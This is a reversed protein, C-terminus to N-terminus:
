KVSDHKAPIRFLPSIVLPPYHGLGMFDTPIEEKIKSHIPQKKKYNQNLSKTKVKWCSSVVSDASGSTTITSSLGDGAEVGPILVHDSGLPSKTM